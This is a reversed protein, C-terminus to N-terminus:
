AGRPCKKASLRTEAVGPARGDKKACICGVAAVGPGLKIWTADAGNGLLGRIKGGFPVAARRRLRHQRRDDPLADIDRRPKWPHAEPTALRDHDPRSTRAADDSPIQAKSALLVCCTSGAALVSQSCLLRCRMPCDMPRVETRDRVSALVLGFLISMLLFVSISIFSLAMSM